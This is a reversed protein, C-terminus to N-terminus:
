ISNSITRLKNFRLNALAVPIILAISRIEVNNIEESKFLPPLSPFTKQSM